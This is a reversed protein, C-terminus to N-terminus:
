TTPPTSTRSQSRAAPRTTAAAWTACASTRWSARAPRRPRRRTRRTSAGIPTRARSNPRVARPGARVARIHAGRRRRRRRHRAPDRGPIGPGAAHTGTGAARPRERPRRAADARHRRALGAARAAPRRPPRARARPDRGHLQAAGSGLSQRSRQRARRPVRTGRAHLRVRRPGARLLRAAAVSGAEDRHGRLPVDADARARGARADHRAARGRRRPAASHRPGRPRAPRRRVPHPVAAQRAPGAHRAHEAGRRAHVDANGRRLRRPRRRLAHRGPQVVAQVACPRRGLRGADGAHFRRVHGGHRRPARLLPGHRPPVPRARAAHAAHPHGRRGERLRHGHLLQQDRPVRRSARQARAPRRGRRVARPAPVRGGRHARRRALEPRELVGPRPLGHPGGQAVAPVLRPVDRPQRDLQPLVRPRDRRRHGRLRRRDGDRPRRPGPPQQLHQPGQEGDRGHQLRRRLLDHVHRPRVRPRLAGRGLPIRAQAVGDRSPLAASQRADLLDEARRRAGVPDHVHGRARGPRRGRARVPVLAKPFPDHWTAFHRGDALAGQAILNGNSLLVPFAAPDARLTVTYRALVDPRDPFFTIRRFGEPECQTCFVGSSVYLGELSANRAPDNRSRVTLVGSPPPELVTLSGAGFRLREAPVSVGDLEVRVDSQQEGDLVLPAAHDSAHAYPNRRFALRATVGTAAPDLDFELDLSDVLFAPPRYETRRKIPAASDRPLM